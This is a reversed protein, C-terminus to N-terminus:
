NREYQKWALILEKWYFIGIIEFAINTIVGPYYKSIQIADILHHLEVVFFLGFLTLIYLRLKGGFALLLAPGIMLWWTIHSAYYQAQPITKFFSSFYKMIWDNKYFVTVIEEFGHLYITAILLLIIKKFRNSIM